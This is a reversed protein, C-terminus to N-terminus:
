EEADGEGKGENVAKLAKQIAHLASGATKGKKRIGGDAGGNPGGKRKGPTPDDAGGDDDDGEGDKDPDNDGEDAASVMIDVLDPRYFKSNEVQMQEFVYGGRRRGNCPFPTLTAIFSEHYEKLFGPCVIFQPALPETPKTWCPSLICHLVRHQLRARALGIHPTPLGKFYLTFVM